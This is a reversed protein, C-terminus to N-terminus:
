LVFYTKNSVMFIDADVVEWPKCPIDYHLAAKCPQTCQYDLCGTCQKVAHEIDTNMNIWCVLQRALLCTKEIGMHNSYQQELIQKQLLYLLIICKGKLAIGDIMGLEHRIPWYKEVRPEVVEKVHPWGGIIYRKLMQLEMDEETAAKIDEMFTCIPVDVTRNITHGSVNMGSTEQEKIEVHNHHSLRDAMYLASGPKYLIHMSYQHIHLMIHQLCQSFTADDKSIMAVLLKHDPIVNAEKVFCYHHNKKLVMYYVWHKERLTATDGIWVPYVKVPLLM